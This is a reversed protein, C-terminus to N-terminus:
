IFLQADINQPNVIFIVYLILITKKYLKLKNNKNVM